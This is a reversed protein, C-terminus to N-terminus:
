ERPPQPTTTLARLKSIANHRRVSWKDQADIGEQMGDFPGAPYPADLASVIELGAAKLREILQLVERINAPQVTKIYNRTPEDPGYVGGDTQIIAEPYLGGEWDRPSPYMNGNEDWHWEGETPGAALAAEIEKIADM